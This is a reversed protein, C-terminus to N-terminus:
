QLILLLLIEIYAQGILTMAYKGCPENIGSHTQKGIHQLVTIKHAKKKSIYSPFHDRRYILLFIM